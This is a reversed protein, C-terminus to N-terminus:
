DVLENFDVDGVVLDRRWLREWCDEKGLELPVSVSDLVTVLGLEGGLRRGVLESTQPLAGDLM